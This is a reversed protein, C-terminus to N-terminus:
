VATITASVINSGDAGNSGMYGVNYTTTSTNDTYVVTTKSWLYQGKDVVPINQSWSGDPPINGNASAQYVVTASLVGMSVGDKGDVGNKIQVDVASGNSLVFSITNTGGSQNSVTTQQVNSLGFGDAGKLSFLVEGCIAQENSIQEVARVNGTSFLIYDGELPKIQSPKVLNLPVTSSQDAQTCYFFGAGQVRGLNLKTSM